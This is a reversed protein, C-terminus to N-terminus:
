VAPSRRSVSVTDGLIMARAVMSITLFGLRGFSDVSRFTEARGLGPIPTSYGTIGCQPPLPMQRNMSMKFQAKTAVARELFEIM